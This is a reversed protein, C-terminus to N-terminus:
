LLDHFYVGIVLVSSAIEEHSSSYKHSIPVSKRCIPDTKNAFIMNRQNELKLTSGLYISGTPKHFLYLALRSEFNLDKIYLFVM